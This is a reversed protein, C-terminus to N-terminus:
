IRQHVFMDGQILTNFHDANIDFTLRAKEVLSERLNKLKETYVTFDAWKSVVEIVVELGTTYFTNYSDTHRTVM